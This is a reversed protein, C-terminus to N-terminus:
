TSGSGLPQLQSRLFMHTNGSAAMAQSLWQADGAELPLSHRCKDSHQYDSPPLVLTSLVGVRGLKLILTWVRGSTFTGKM